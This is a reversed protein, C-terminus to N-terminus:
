DTINVTASSNPGLTATSVNSLTLTFSEPGEATNDDTIRISITQNGAVQDAYTLTGSLAGNAASYDSGAVATGDTIAYDVSAVGSNGGSRTVIVNVITGEAADFRTGALQITGPPGPTPGASGGGCASLMTIYVSILCRTTFQRTTMLAMM